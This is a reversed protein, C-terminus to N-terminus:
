QGSANRRALLEAEVDVDRTCDDWAEGAIRALEAARQAAASVMVAAEDGPATPASPPPSPAHRVRDPGTTSM